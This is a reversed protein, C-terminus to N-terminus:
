NGKPAALAAPNLHRRLTRTWRNSPLEPQIAALSTCFKSVRTPRIGHAWLARDVAGPRQPSKTEVILQDGFSTAEGGAAIGKVDRDVTVRADDVVLTAREYRTTLVPSLSDVIGAVEPFSAVFRRAGDELRGGRPQAADLWERHKVTEGRASRLKVEIARAGSDLYERTRVKFRSPRRRAAARYSDLDPTDYYVSEYGFVRQGDIELARLGDVEAMVCAWAEPGVIYKRDVRTLLAAEGELEALTVAPLESLRQEWSTM